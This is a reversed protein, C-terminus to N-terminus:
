LPLRFCVHWSRSSVQLCFGIPKIVYKALFSFLPALIVNKIWIFPIAILLLFDRLFSEWIWVLPIALFRLVPLIAHMFLWAVPILIIGLIYGLLLFIKGILWIVAAAVAGALCAVPLILFGASVGQFFSGRCHNKAPASAWIALTLLSLILVVTPYGVKECVSNISWL